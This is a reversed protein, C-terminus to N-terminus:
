RISVEGRGEGRDLRLPLFSDAATQTMQPHCRKRCRVRAPETNSASLLPLSKLWNIKLEKELAKFAPDGTVLDAGPEDRLLALLAHSDLVTAPM